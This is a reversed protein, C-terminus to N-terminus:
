RLYWASAQKQWSLFATKSVPIMCRANRWTDPLCPKEDPVDAQTFSSRPDVQRPWAPTLNWFHGFALVIDNWAPGEAKNPLLRIVSSEGPALNWLVSLEEACPTSHAIVSGAGSM